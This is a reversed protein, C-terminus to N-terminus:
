GHLRLLGYNTEPSFQRQVEEKMKDWEKVGPEWLSPEKIKEPEHFRQVLVRAAFPEREDASVTLVLGAFSAEQVLTPTPLSLVMEKVHGTSLSTSLLFARPACNFVFGHYTLVPPKFMKKRTKQYDTKEEFLSLIDSVAHSHIYRVVTNDEDGEIRLVSVLPKRSPVHARIVRYEGGYTEIFAKNDLSAGMGEAIAVYMDRAVFGREYQAEAVYNELKLVTSERNTVEGKQSLLRRLAKPGIGTQDSLKDLTWSREARIAVLAARLKIVRQELSLSRFSGRRHDM